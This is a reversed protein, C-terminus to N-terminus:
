QTFKFSKLLLIALIQRLAEYSIIGVSTALNLSRGYSKMPITIANEWNLQMLEM